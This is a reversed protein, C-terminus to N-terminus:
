KGVWPFLHEMGFCWVLASSFIKKPCFTDCVAFQAVSFVGLLLNKQRRASGPTVQSSILSQLRADVAERFSSYHQGLVDALQWHAVLSRRLLDTRHALAQGRPAGLENRFQRRLRRSLNRASSAAWQKGSMAAQM